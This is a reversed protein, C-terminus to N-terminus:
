RDARARIDNAVRVRWRTRTGGRVTQRLRQPAQARQTRTTETHRVTRECARMHVTCAHVGGFRLLETCTENEVRM